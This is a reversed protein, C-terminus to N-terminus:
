CRLERTHLPCASRTCITHLDEQRRRERSALAALNGSGLAADDRGPTQAPLERPPGLHVQVVSRMRILNNGGHEPVARVCTLPQPPHGTLVRSQRDKDAAEPVSTARSRPHLRTPNDTRVASRGMSGLVRRPVTVAAAVEGHQTSGAAVTGHQHALEGSRSPRRRPPVGTRGHAGTGLCPTQWDKATANPHNNNIHQLGTRRANQADHATLPNAMAARTV